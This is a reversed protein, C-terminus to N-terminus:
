DIGDFCSSSTTRSSIFRAPSGVAGFASAPALTRFFSRSRTELASDRCAISSKKSFCVLCLSAQPDVCDTTQRRSAFTRDGTLHIADGNHSAVGEASDMELARAYQAARHDLSEVCRRHVSPRGNVDAQFRLAPNM